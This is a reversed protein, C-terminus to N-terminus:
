RAGSVAKYLTIRGNSVRIDGIYEPTQLPLGDASLEPARLGRSIQRILRPILAQPINLRGIKAEKVALEALGPRIIRLTGGLQIREREGLLASLPGLAGGGAGGLERTSVVARVFLRDGIAAAEISDASPPLSKALEQLIYAALDGPAVNAYVPGRPARLQNLAAQARKAGEPTLPQWTQTAVSASDRKSGGPLIRIWGDRYLFAAVAVIVVVVLCGLKKMCGM